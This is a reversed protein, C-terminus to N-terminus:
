FAFIPDILYKNCESIVLTYKYILMMITLKLQDVVSNRATGQAMETGILICTAIEDM